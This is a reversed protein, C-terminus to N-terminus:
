DRLIAWREHDRWRGGIKLYRPSFGEREFGCRQVLAISRTNGPQINAELRHLKMEGFAVRLVSQLARTMRGQAEHGAFAYYGLYASQLPGRVIQSINFVGVIAGGTSDIALLSRANPPQMRELWAAYKEPTDPPSTWPRHLRRSRRVAALFEAEDSAQPARLVVAVEGLRKRAGNM